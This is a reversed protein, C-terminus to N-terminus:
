NTSKKIFNDINNNCLLPIYTNIKKDDWEWWRIQLLSDIQEVTFRFKIFKAPNGGVISYSDVNKVVHSNCAIIAGDGIKVGGM